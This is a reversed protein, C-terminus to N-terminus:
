LIKIYEEKYEEPKLGVKYRMHDLMLVVVVTAICGIIIFTNATTTYRLLFSAFLCIVFRFVSELMNYSSSIKTRLSSNTFNNLYQRILTSFPGNAYM